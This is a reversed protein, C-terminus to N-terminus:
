LYYNFLTLKLILNFICIEVRIALLYVIEFEKKLAEVVM